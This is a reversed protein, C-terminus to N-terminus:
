NNGDMDEKDTELFAGKKLDPSETSSPSTVEATPAPASKTDAGGCGFVVFPILGLFLFHSRRFSAVSM